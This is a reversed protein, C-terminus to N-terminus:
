KTDRRDFICIQRFVKQHPRSYIVPENNGFLDRLNYGSKQISALTKKMIENKEEIYYLPVCLTVQKIGSAYFHSFAQKYLASLEEDTKELQEYNPMDQLAEGLYGESIINYPIEEKETVDHFFIDEEKFDVDSFKKRLFSINQLSAKVMDVSYDSGLVTKGMLMAEFVLTGTGCFSDWVYPSNDSINILMQALKPPLMGVKGDRAPKEYDRLAYSKPSQCSITETLIYDVGSFCFINFECSVEKSMIQDFTVLSSINKKMQCWRVSFPVNQKLSSYTPFLEKMYKEPHINMGLTIKKREPNKEIVYDILFGEISEFPVVALEKAIKITGGLRDQLKLMDTETEVWLIDESLAFIEEKLLAQLELISLDKQGGIFIYYKQM